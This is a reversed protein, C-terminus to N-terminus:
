RLSRVWSKLRQFIPKKKKRRQNLIYNIVSPRWYKRLGLLIFNGLPIAEPLTLENRIIQKFEEARDENYKSNTFPCYLYHALLEDYYEIADFTEGEPMRNVVRKIINQARRTAWYASTNLDEPIKITVDSLKILNPTRLDPTSFYERISDTLEAAMASMEREFKNSYSMKQLEFENKGSLVGLIELANSEGCNRLDLFQGLTLEQASNPITITERNPLVITKM